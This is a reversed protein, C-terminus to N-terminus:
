IFKNRLINNFIENFDYNFGRKLKALNEDKKHKKQMFDEVFEPNDPFMEKMALEMKEYNEKCKEYNNLDYYIAALNQACGITDFFDNEKLIDFIDEFIEACEKLTTLDARALEDFDIALTWLDFHHLNNKNKLIFDKIQKYESSYPFYGKYNKLVNKLKECEKKIESNKMKELESKCYDCECTFGFQEKAKKQREEYSHEMGFYIVCVEENKKINKMAILIYIDGITFKFTNPDCSHNFYAPFIFLGSGEYPYPNLFNLFGRGIACCNHNFIKIVDNINNELNGKEKREELSLNINDKRSLTLFQEKQEKTFNEYIGKFFEMDNISKELHVLLAKSVCLLEGKKIDANAIIKTGHEQKELLTLKPNRYEPAYISEIYFQNEEIELLKRYNLKYSKFNNKKLYNELNIKYKNKKVFEPDVLAKLEYFNDQKKLVENKELFEEAEKIKNQRFLSIFKINNAELDKKDINLVLQSYEESKQYDKKEFYLNFLHKLISENDPELKLGELFVEIAKDTNGEKLYNNGKKRLKKIQEQKKRM